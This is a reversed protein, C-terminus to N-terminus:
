QPLVDLTRLYHLWNDAQQMFHGAGKCLVYSKHRHCTVVPLKYELLYTPTGVSHAIHSFGSDCGVFLACNALLGVVEDLPQSPGLTIAELGNHRAWTVITRIENPSPNKEAASSIGDFHVCIFQFNYARRDLSWQRKTPFYPGAWIDFGDPSRAVDPIEWAPMRPGPIALLDLIEGARQLLRRDPHTYAVPEQQAMHALLNLSAWHDGLGDNWLRYCVRSM